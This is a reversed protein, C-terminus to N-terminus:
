QVFRSLGKKVIRILRGYGLIIKAKLKKFMHYHESQSLRWPSYFLKSAEKGFISLNLFILLIILIFIPTHSFGNINFHKAISNYVVPM